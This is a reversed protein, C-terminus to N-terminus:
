GAVSEEQEEKKKEGRENEEGVGFGAAEAPVGEEHDSAGGNEDADVGGFDV